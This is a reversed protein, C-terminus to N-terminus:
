NKEFQSNYLKKYFGNQKMLEDHNGQEIIDGDKLVLILDANKITSLRHAIIFSTKNKSLEDMAKQVLEETRTDVNSTAEDLILFPANKLMGRAITILQKQGQSIMDNNNIESNIGDPLTKIFHYIGVTKCVQKIQEETINEQNYKLNEKITGDFLWTDQLVMCFLDHVNERTLDKISKGDIIIDGDNIDYFKMLLNVITTKGAGTPGVIAVKQGPKIIASFGNIIQKNKSYGFKVDKFVISGKANNKNIVNTIHKESIMNEEELFKFVRESAAAISQMSTMSQAIQTLPNTFLRVYLVFAIVVGFTISKNIVLSSGIICVAVYGFNGIFTMLPQMLGSFFQSKRNLDFLEKNLSKFKKISIDKGNYAKIMNHSSYIEEIYGNLDGLINQRKDFYKQSKGLIMFMFMFGILSSLIATIAMISNTYFMMIISGIFLALNGVLSTLSQNLNHGIIDIDNTIISLTDGNEHTDFFNLPLKNIKNSVNTRLKKAFKNSITSMIYNQIFGFLSSFLLLIIIIKSLNTVADIDIEPTLIKIISDPLNNLVETSQEIDNNKILFIQEDVSITIKNIEIPELLIYFVKNPLNKVEQTIDKKELFMAVIKEFNAKEETTLEDSMIIQQIKEKNINSSMEKIIEEMKYTEPKIGETIVDTLNSMKNPLILTLISSSFALLISLIILFKWPKLNILLKNLSNFFTNNKEKNM